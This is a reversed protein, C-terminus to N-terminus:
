LIRYALFEMPHGPVEEEGWDQMYLDILRTQCQNFENMDKSALAVHAHAEYVEVSFKGFLHQVTLDQRISKFQECAYLYDCEKAAWKRRLQTLSLKLVRLPRIKAPDPLGTLRLYRKELDTCTGVIPELSPARPSTHAYTYRSSAQSATHFRMQRRRRQVDEKRDTEDLTKSPETDHNSLNWRSKEKRRARKRQNAIASPLAPLPHNAWDTLHMTKKQIASTILQRM